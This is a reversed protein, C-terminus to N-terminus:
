RMRCGGLRSFLVSVSHAVSPAGMRCCPSRESDDGGSDTCRNMLGSTVSTPKGDATLSSKLAVAMGARIKEATMASPLAPASFDVTDPDFGPFRIRTM